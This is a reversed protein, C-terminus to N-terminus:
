GVETMFNITGKLNSFVNTQASSDASSYQFAVIAKGEEYTYLGSRSTGKFTILGRWEGGSSPAPTADAGGGGGGGCAALGVSAAIVIVRALHTREHWMNTVDTVPSRLVLEETTQNM